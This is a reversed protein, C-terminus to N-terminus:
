LPGYLYCCFYDQVAIRVSLISTKRNFAKVMDGQSTLDVEAAFKALTLFQVRHDPPFVIRPESRSEICLHAKQGSRSQVILLRRHRHYDSHCILMSDVSVPSSTRYVVEGTLIEM